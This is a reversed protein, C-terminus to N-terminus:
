NAGGTGIVTFWAGSGVNYRARTGFYFEDRLFGSDSEKELSGFEVKSRQQMILPRVVGKTSMLFWLSNAATANHFLYGSVMVDIGMESMVATQASVGAAGKPPVLERAIQELAPEVLLLDPEIGMVRGTDDQFGRMKAIAAWLTGIALASADLNDQAAGDADSPAPHDNDILGQGDYCLYPVAQSGFAGLLFTLALEDPYRAAEVALQRIRTSLMGLKNDEIDSRKVGITNEWTKNRINYNFNALDAAWRPGLFERVKPVAGLWPYDESDSDSKMMTCIRSSISKSAELKYAEMFIAKLGKTLPGIPLDGPGFPM